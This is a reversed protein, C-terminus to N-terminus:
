VKLKARPKNVVKGVSEDLTGLLYFSFYIEWEREGIQKLGVSEGTLAASLYIYDGKWKICGNSRVQRVTFWPEYEVKPLKEPFIRASPIYLSAPVEMSIAEHPRENNYEKRFYDFAKQQERLNAQPPNTAETKLSRHMREHRGNQEPHGLAIREPKIWLKILWASLKSIGGLSVSAFPAGNDNRISLPLGYERFARELQPKTNAYDPRLLGHCELLYRSYNDSITLPYCLLRNGLRFQGKFDISWVDNSRRCDVFPESYPPTHHKFRRRKVLGEKDLIRNVTSNAPWDIAPNHRNLWAVIKKPGWHEHRLKAEIVRGAIEPPTENPHHHPAKSLEALAEVGGQAYRTLWKYITKRSVGYAQSLETVTYEENELCEILTKRQEMPRLEKWPM